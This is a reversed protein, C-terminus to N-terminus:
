AATCEGLEVPLPFTGAHMKRYTSAKNLHTLREVERRRLIRAEM